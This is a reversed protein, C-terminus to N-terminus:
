SACDTYSCFIEHKITKRQTTRHSTRPVRSIAESKGPSEMSSNAVDSECTKLVEEIGDVFQRSQLADAMAVNTMNAPIKNKKCVAQLERRTVQLATSIWRAALSNQYM